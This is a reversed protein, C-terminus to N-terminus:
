GTLDRQSSHDLNSTYKPLLGWLISIQDHHILLVGSAEAASKASATFDANTVVVGFRTAYYAMGSLIEQVAKNGVSQSYLKCQFAIRVGERDAIIDAGQDGSAPTTIASWGSEKLKLVCYQEYEVGTRISEFEGGSINMLIDILDLAEDWSVYTEGGFMRPSVVERIFTIKITQWSAADLEGWRGACKSRERRLYQIKDIICNRLIDLSNKRADHDIKQSVLEAAKNQQHEGPDESTRMDQGGTLLTQRKPTLPTDASPWNSTVWVPLPRPVSPEQHGPRAIGKKQRLAIWIGFPVIASIALVTLGILFGSNMFQWYCVHGPRLM